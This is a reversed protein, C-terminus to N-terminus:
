NNIMSTILGALTTFVPLSIAAISVRGALELKAGLANEGADKAVDASLTTIYSIALAKLLVEAFEGSIGAADALEGLASVSPTLSKVAYILIMLGAGINVFVASEPKLQRVVACLVAALLGFGCLRLIDAVM